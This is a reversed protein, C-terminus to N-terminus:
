QRTAHEPGDAFPSHGPHSGGPGRLSQGSQARIREQRARSTRPNLKLAQDYADMARAYKKERNYQEAARMLRATQAGTMRGIVRKRYDAAIKNEPDRKLIADFIIRASKLKNKNYLRVGANFLRTLRARERISRPIELGSAKAYKENLYFSTRDPYVVGEKRCTSEGSLIRNAMNGTLVGIRIYDPTIAFTAGAKVLSTFGTMLVIKNRRCFESLQRFRTRDYLPDPVIYFAHASDGIKKLAGPLDTKRELRVKKYYFGSRLDFYEGEGATFEGQDTSYFAFVKHADPRIRRLTRFFREISVDMTVGCGRGVVPGLTRPFGVMSFLVPTKKLHKLAVRTARPGISIVLPVRSQELRAFYNEINKERFLLTDLYNIRLDAQIVSQIGNLGRAYIDTDSSLLVQVVKKPANAKKIPADGKGDQASLAFACALILIISATGTKGM